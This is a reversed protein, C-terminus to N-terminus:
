RQYRQIEQMMEPVANWENNEVSELITQEEPDVPIM